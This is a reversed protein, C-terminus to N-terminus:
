LANEFTSFCTQFLEALDFFDFLDSGTITAAKENPFVIYFSKSKKVVGKCLLKLKM